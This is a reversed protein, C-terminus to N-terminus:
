GLRQILSAASKNYSYVRIGKNTFEDVHIATDPIVQYEIAKLITAKTQAPKKGLFVHLTRSIFLAERIQTKFAGM